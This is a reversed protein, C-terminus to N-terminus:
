INFCQFIILCLYKLIFGFVIYLICTEILYFKNIILKMDRLISVIVIILTIM